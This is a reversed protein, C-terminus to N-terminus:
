LKLMYSATTSYRQSTQLNHSLVDELFDVKLLTEKVIQDPGLRGMVKSYLFSASNDM